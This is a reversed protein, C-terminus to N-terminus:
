RRPVSVRFYESDRRFCDLWRGGDIDGLTVWGEVNCPNAVQTRHAALAEAKTARTSEIRIRRNLERPLFLGFRTRRAAHLMARRSHRWRPFGLPDTIPWQDWLWVPYEWIEAASKARTAALRAARSVAVHDALMDRRHPVFLQEPAESQILRTLQETMAEVQQAAAGDPFGFFHLREMPVGLVGCAELAEARRLRSMTKGPILGPHSGSNDTVFVVTVRAGAAVKRAITGGCALTEDDAHPAVVLASAHLAEDGAEPLADLTRWNRDALRSRLVEM